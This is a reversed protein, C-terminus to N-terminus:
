RNLRFNLHKSKQYLLNFIIFILSYAADLFPMYLFDLIASNLSIVVTHEFFYILIFLFLASLFSFLFTMMPLTLIRDSFFYKRLPLLLFATVTYSFAYLGLHNNGSLVDLFLGSLCAIWLALQTKCRYIAIIIMPAFFSIKWTPFKIPFVLLILLIILLPILLNKKKLDM